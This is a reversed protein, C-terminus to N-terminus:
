RIWQLQYFKALSKSVESPSAPAKGRSTKRAERHQLNHEQKSQLKLPRWCGQIQNMDQKIGNPNWSNFKQLIEGWTNAKKRLTKNNYGKSEVEPFERVLEAVLLMEEESFNPM